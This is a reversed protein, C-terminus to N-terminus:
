NSGKQRQSGNGGNVSFTDVKLDKRKRLLSDLYRMYAFDKSVKYSGISDDEQSFTIRRLTTDSRGTQNKGEDLEGVHVAATTDSSDNNQAFAPISFHLLLFATAFIIFRNKM